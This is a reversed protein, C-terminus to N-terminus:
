FICVLEKTSHGEFKRTEEHNFQPSVDKGPSDNFSYWTIPINVKIMQNLHHIGPKKLTFSCMKGKYNMIKHPPIKPSHLYGM